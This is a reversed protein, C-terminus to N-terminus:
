PAAGPSAEGRAEALRTALRERLAEARALLAELKPGEEAEDFDEVKAIMRGAAGEIASISVSIVEEANCRQGGNPSPLLMRNLGRLGQMMADLDWLGGLIEEFRRGGGLNDRLWIRFATGIEGDMESLARALRPLDQATGDAFTWQGSLNLWELMMTRYVLRSTEIDAPDGAVRPRQPTATAAKSRLKADRIAERVLAVDTDREAPNCWLSTVFKWTAESMVALGLIQPEPVPLEVGPGVMARDLRDDRRIRTGKQFNLAEDAFASWKAAGTMECALKTALQGSSPEFDGYDGAAGRIPLSLPEFIHTAGIGPIAASKEADPFGGTRRGIVVAVVPEGRELALGTVFDSLRSIGM